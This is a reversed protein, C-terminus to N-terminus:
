IQKCTEINDSRLLIPGIVSQCISLVRDYNAM